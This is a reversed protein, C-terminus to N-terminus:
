DLKQILYNEIALIKLKSNELVHFADKPTHVLPLGHLNLSTNLVGGIGSLKKFENILNWYGNNHGKTIKQPRVTRDYPHIGAIIEDAAKKTNYTLIMYYPEAKKNTIVYREIDTDLISSAFPMWFDRSKIMENIERIINPNSPDAMIARNGLSRAGFEERDKFRAVVYGEKLLQASKEEINEIFDITYKHKFSYSDIAKKIEGNTYSIGFYIDELKKIKNHDEYESYLYYAAGISNSEDGCSPYVFISNVEDLEMLLQNAKVNMFTGGSLAINNIGTKHIASKVWRVLFEEIFLQLGGMLSDFRKLLMFKQLMKMSTFVSYGKNFEWTLGDESFTFMTHLEDAIIRSYKKDVYPAMGMIKYEHELPTMGFLYTFIAYLAGVSHRADIQAVRKLKGNKGVSVTGCNRDGSGDNTFVLVDESFNGNGYYATSAHLLHHDLFKIKSKIFGLDEALKIRSKKNKNEYITSLLPAYRLKRKLLSFNITSRKLFSNYIALNQGRAYPKPMYNGNFGIFDIEEAKLNAKKLILEISNYPFGSKNKENTLREEQVVYKIEGDIMLAASANHGDHIGLIKM